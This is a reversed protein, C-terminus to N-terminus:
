YVFVAQWQSSAHANVVEEVRPVRHPKLETAYSVLQRMDICLWLKGNPHRMLM